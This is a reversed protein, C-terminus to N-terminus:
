GRPGVEPNGLISKISLVARRGDFNRKGEQWFALTGGRRLTVVSPTWKQGEHNHLVEAHGYQFNAAVSNSTGFDIGIYPMTKLGGCHGCPGFLRTAAAGRRVGGM